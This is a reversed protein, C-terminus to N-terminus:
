LGVGIKKKSYSFVKVTPLKLRESPQVQHQQDHHFLQIPFGRVPNAPIAGPNEGGASIPQVRLRSFKPTEPLRPKAKPNAGPFHFNQLDTTNQPHRQQLHGRKTFRNAPHRGKEQQCDSVRPLM